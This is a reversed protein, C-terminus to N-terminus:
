IFPYKNRKVSIKTDRSIKDGSKLPTIVCFVPNKDERVIKFNNSM